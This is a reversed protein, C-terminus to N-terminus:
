YGSAQSWFGKGSRHSPPIIRGNAQTEAAEPAQAPWNMKIKYGAGLHESTHPRNVKTGAGIDPSGGKIEGKRPVATGNTSVYPARAPGGSGTSKRGNRNESAVAKDIDSM